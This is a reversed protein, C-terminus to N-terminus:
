KNFDGALTSETVVFTPFEHRLGEDPLQGVLNCNSFSKSISFLDKKMEM